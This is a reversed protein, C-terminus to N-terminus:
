SPATKPGSMRIPALRFHTQQLLQLLHQLLRDQHQPPLPAPVQAPHSDRLCGPLHSCCFSQCCGLHQPPWLASLAPCSFRAQAGGCQSWLRGAILFQVRQLHHGKPVAAHRQLGLAHPANSYGAPRLLGHPWQQAAAALLALHWRPLCLAAGRQSRLSQLLGRHRLGCCCLHDDDLYGTGLAEAAADAGTEVAAQCWVV